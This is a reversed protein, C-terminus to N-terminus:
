LCDKSLVTTTVSIYIHTESTHSFISSHHKCFDLLHLSLKYKTNKKGDKEYQKRLLFYHNVHCCRLLVNDSSKIITFRIFYISCWQCVWPSKALLHSPSLLFSVLIGRYNSLLFCTRQRDEKSGRIVM